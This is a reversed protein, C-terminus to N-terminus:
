DDEEEYEIYNYEQSLEEIEQSNDKSLNSSHIRYYALYKESYDFYERYTFFIFVLITIIGLLILKQIRM